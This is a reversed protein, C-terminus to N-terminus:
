CGWLTPSWRVPVMALFVLSITRERPIGDATDSAYPARGQGEGVGVGAEVETM